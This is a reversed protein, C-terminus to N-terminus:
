INLTSSFHSIFGIFLIFQQKRNHKLKYIYQRIKYQPIFKSQELIWLIHSCISLLIILISNSYKKWSTSTYTLIFLPIINIIDLIEYNIRSLKYKEMMLETYQTTYEPYMIKTTESIFFISALWNYAYTGFMKNFNQSM